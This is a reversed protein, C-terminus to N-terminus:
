LIYLTTIICLAFISGILVYVLIVCTSQSIYITAEEEEQLSIQQEEISISTDIDIFNVFSTLLNNTSSRCFPCTPSKKIWNVICDVHYVGNKCCKVRILKDTIKLWCIDCIENHTDSNLIFM